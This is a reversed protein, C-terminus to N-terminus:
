RPALGRRGIGKRGTIWDTQVRLHDRWNEGSTGAELKARGEERLVYRKVHTLTRRARDIGQRVHPGSPETLECDPVSQYPRLLYPPKLEERSM